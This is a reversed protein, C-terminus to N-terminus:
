FLKSDSIDDARDGEVLYSNKYLKYVLPILAFLWIHIELIKNNTGMGTVLLFLLAGVLALVLVKNLEQENTGIEKRMLGFIKIFCLYYILMYLVTGISGHDVLLTFLTNHSARRATSVGDITKASNMYEVPIYYPSLLLTGKHGVGFVPNERFMDWQAKLIILRSEASRDQENESVVNNSSGPLMTSFKDLIAEGMLTFISIVALIGYVYLKKKSGKNIFFLLIIGIGFLSAVVARSEALIVGNLTLAIFPLLLFIKKGFPHLLLFSSLLLIVGFHQAVSNSGGLGPVGLDELLGLGMGQFGYYSTGLLNIIIFVIYDKQTKITNQIIFMILYFKICLEMYFAHLNTDLVLFYQLWVFITFIIFIKTEKNPFFSIKNRAGRMVISFITIVAIIFLYAIEPLQYGWWQGSPNFYYTFIYTYLGFISGRVICLLIGLMYVLIFFLAFLSM